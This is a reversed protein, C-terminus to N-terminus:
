DETQLFLEVEASLMNMDIPTTVLDSAGLALVRARTRPSQDPDSALAIIPIDATAKDEKLRKLLVFGDEDPLHLNLLIVGPRREAIRALGDRGNEALIVPHGLRGLADALQTRTNEDPEIILVPESGRGGLLEGVTDLLEEQEIPKPLAYAAFQMNAPDEAYVSIVLIPINRTAIDAKLRAALEDGRMDPLGIDLTILDPHHADLYALAKGATAAIATKYGAQQLRRAILRAIDPDDEVILISGPVSSKKIVPSATQVSSSPRHVISPTEETTERGDDMTKDALPATFFFTSGAGEQSEVGVEGGMLEIIQKVISLGLGTGGISRTLSNDV